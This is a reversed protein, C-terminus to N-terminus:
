GRGGGGGFGGGGGGFSSGGGFGGSSSYSSNAASRTSIAKSIGSTISSNISNGIGLNYYYLIPADYLMDDTYNLEKIRMEMAKQVKDAIGFATAYVLYKEWLKIELIEKEKFSGFDKLFNKLARWKAYHENGLSTRKTSSAVYIIAIVSIPLLLISLVTELELLLSLISIVIGFVLIIIYKGKSGKENEYFNKAEGESIVEKKWSDYKKLFSEYHNKSADKIDKNTFENGNGVDNILWEKLLQETKTLPSIDEKKMITFNKKNSVDQKVELSKKRILEMISASLYESKINNKTLLYGLIEPGYEEPIERLYKQTFTPKLEKDHKQYYKYIAIGIFVIYGFSVINVILLKLKAVRRLNNQIEAQGKEFELIKDFAMINTKKNGNIVLDKDFLVRMDIITNANLFDFTGSVQKKNIIENSGNIPGHTFVRLVESDSKLNLRLNIDEIYESWEFNFLIEAIDEHIVVADEITYRIYFGQNNSYHNYIRIKYEDDYQSLTYKGTDGNNAFNVQEYCNHNNFVYSFDNINNAEGSVCIDKIKSANYIDTEYFDKYNDGIFEKTNGKTILNRELYNYEGNFTVYEQFTASGDDNITVDIFYKETGSAKAQFPILFITFLIMLLVNKKM